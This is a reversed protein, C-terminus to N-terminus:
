GRTRRSRGDVRSTGQAHTRSGVQATPRAAASRRNRWARLVLTPPTIVVLLIAMGIITYGLPRPGFHGTDLEFGRNLWAWIVFFACTALLAVRIGVLGQGKCGSMLNLALFVIVGVLSSMVASHVGIAVSNGVLDADPMKLWKRERRLGDFVPSLSRLEM